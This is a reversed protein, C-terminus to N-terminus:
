LVIKYEAGDSHKCTGYGHGNKGVSLQCQMNSGKDGIAFWYGDAIVMGSSSSVVAAVGPTTKSQPLVAMGDTRQTSTRDVVTFRGTFREGGPGKDISLEVSLPGDYNLQGLYQHGVDDALTVIKSQFQTCGLLALAILMASIKLTASM